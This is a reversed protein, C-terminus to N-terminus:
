GDNKNEEDEIFIVNDACRDTEHDHGHDSQQSEQTFHWFSIRNILTKTLRQQEQSHDIETEPNSFVQDILAMGILAEEGTNCAISLIFFVPFSILNGPVIEVALGSHGWDNEIHLFIILSIIHVRGSRARSRVVFLLQCEDAAQRM